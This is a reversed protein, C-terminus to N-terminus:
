LPTWKHHFTTRFYYFSKSQSRKIFRNNSIPGMGISGKGHVSNLCPEENSNTVSKIVNLERGLRWGSRITLYINPIRHFIPELNTVTFSEALLLTLCREDIAFHRKRLHSNRGINQRYFSSIQTRCNVNQYLSKHFFLIHMYFKLTFLFFIFGLYSLFNWKVNM